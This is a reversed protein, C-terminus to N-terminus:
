DIELMEKAHEHSVKSKGGLMRTIEQIRETSNLQTVRSVTQGHNTSKNIQYHHHAKAAVQPLHTICLVQSKGGIKNLLEAVVQATHGGIGSDVEDFILTPLPYYEATIVQLALNIRSLEGGSVIKHMPRAAMGTNTATYFEITENGHLAIPQKVPHLEISFKGGNFNLQQMKDTVKISLKAAHKKRSSTIKKCISNYKATIADQKELLSALDTAFNNLNNIKKELSPIVEPLEDPTTHHKRSLEYIKELRLEIKSLHAPSLDLSDRYNLMAASAEQLHIHATKLYESIAKIKAHKSDTKEIQNIALEILNTASQEPNESIADLATSINTILSKANHCTQHEITLKQWEGTEINMKNLEDLQYQLYEIEATHDGTSNRKQKIEQEILHWQNYYDECTKVQATIGAFHDLQERQFQKKLLSQHQNQNHVLILKASFNQILNQSCPQGNISSKSKGDLKISRRIICENEPEFDHEKLWNKAPQQHQIDFTLIIDCQTAGDRIVLSDARAGLALMVADIWISKGAGTEGTLVNFGDHFEVTLEDVIVFNKIYIQELM